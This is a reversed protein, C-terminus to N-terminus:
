MNANLLRINDEETGNPGTWKNEPFAFSWSNDDIVDSKEDPAFVPWYCYKVHAFITGKQTFNEIKKFEDIKMLPTPAAINGPYVFLPKSWYLEQWNELVEKNNKDKGVLRIEVAFLIPFKSNNQIVFREGRMVFFANPMVSYKTYKETARVSERTAKTQKYILIVMVITAIASIAEWSFISTILKIILYKILNLHYYYM